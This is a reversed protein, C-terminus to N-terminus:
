IRLVIGLLIRAGLINIILATIVAAPINGVVAVLTDQYFTRDNITSNSTMTERRLYKFYEPFWM